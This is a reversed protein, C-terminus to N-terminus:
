SNQQQLVPSYLKHKSRHFYSKLKLIEETGRELHGLTGYISFSFVQLFDSIFRFVDVSLRKWCTFKGPNKGHYITESTSDALIKNSFNSLKTDTSKGSALKKM